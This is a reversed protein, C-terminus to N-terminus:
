FVIMKKLFVIMIPVSCIMGFLRVFQLSVLQSCTVIDFEFVKFQIFELMRIWSHIEIQM